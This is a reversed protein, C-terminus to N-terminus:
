RTKQTDYKKVLRELLDIDQRITPVYKRTCCVLNQIAM